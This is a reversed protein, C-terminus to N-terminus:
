KPVVAVFQPVLAVGDSVVSVPTVDEGVAGATPDFNIRHLLANQSASDFTGFYLKRGDKLLGGSLPAVPYPNGDAGKTQITIEQQSNVDYGHIFTDPAACTQDVGTIFERPLALNGNADETPGYTIQTATCPATSTATTPTNVKVTATCVFGNTPAGGQSTAQATSGIAYDFWTTDSLGLLHPVGGTILTALGGTVTASLNPTPQSANLVDDCTTYDVLSSGSAFYSLGDPMWALANVGTLAAGSATNYSSIPIFTTGVYQYVGSDGGIWFNSGDAAFTVARIGGINFRTANKSTTDVLYLRPTIATDPNATDSVVVYRSDPSIGIVVGTVQEPSLVNSGVVPFTQTTAQNSGIDLVILGQESGIYAKTGNPAVVLSNPTNTIAVTHTLTLSESDYVLLRYAPSGNAFTAGTVLVSSTSTGGVDVGIANSYIPYGFGAQKSTFATGQTIATTGTTSNVSQMPPTVFDQVAVNCNGPECATAVSYRGSTKTTLLDTFGTVSTFSGSLVDTTMFTLPLSNLPNGNLDVLPMPNGATDVLTATLYQQGGKILQLDTTTFPPQPTQENYPSSALEIVKPPCSAFTAPGSLTGNLKAYVNTVGPNRAAVYGHTSVSVVNSDAVMWQYDDDYVNSIPNGNGDVPYAIYKVQQEQVGNVVPLSQSVCPAPGTLPPQASPWNEAALTISAARIHVSLRSTNTVNHSQNYATITVYGPPVNITGGINRGTNPDVTGAPYYIPSCIQFYTDWQGACVQGSPSISVRPDSAYFRILPQPAIPKPNSNKTSLDVSATVTAYEGANLTFRDPTLVMSYVDNPEPQTSNNVTTGCSALLVALALATLTFLRNM